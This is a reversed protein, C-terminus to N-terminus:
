WTRFVEVLVAKDHLQELALPPTDYWKVADLRPPVTGAQAGASVILALPAMVALLTKKM